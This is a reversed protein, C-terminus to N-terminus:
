MLSKVVSVIYNIDEEDYRQDVPLFLTNETLDHEWTGKYKEDGCQGWLTPVFIKRQILERKINTGFNLPYMYPIVDTEVKIRNLGGFAQEYIKANERRRNAVFEYDVSHMIADALKSMNDYSQGLLEDVHKKEQYCANTGNELSTLLYGAYGAGNSLEEQECIFDETILYSGDPVGFFKRCSYIYNSGVNPRHFFSHCNDVIYHFNTHNKIFQDMRNSMIGFYDVIYIWDDKEYNEILPLLNGDIKYYIVQLDHREIEKCVNPCLYLPVHIRKVKNENIVKDIGVKASNYKLLHYESTSYYSNSRRLELPQFGGYSEHKRNM